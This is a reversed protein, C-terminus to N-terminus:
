ILPVLLIPLRLAECNSAPYRCNRTPRGVGDEWSCDMEPKRNKGLGCIDLIKHRISWLNTSSNREYYALEIDKNM